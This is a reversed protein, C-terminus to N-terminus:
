AAVRLEEAVRLVLDCAQGHSINYYDQLHALLTKADLWPEIKKGQMVASESLQLSKRREEIATAELETAIKNEAEISARKEAVMADIKEDNNAKAQAIKAQEEAQVKAIAKAEEQKRIEERQAELRAAEGAKQKEIRSTITLAFDEIPKSILSQLDPFLASHGAANEKCWTLKARVDKAAADAAIKGNALATDLADKLSAITRKSKIAGAFDPRAITLQIPRTELELAQVHASFDVGAKRVLETRISEKRAKVMKELMLRTTRATDAYLKVTKRMDDIDSTQSLANSEAAELADQANQLVKIAQEADAFGQDDNPEKNISLVFEKLRTGFKQLNTILSISGNVQISLAPLDMVPAAIVEVKPQEIEGAALKRKYEELDIAFQTWGQVIHDRVSQNSEYWGHLEEVLEYGDWKSAMFLCKTAGSVMLQQEMQAYYQEPIEGAAFASRLTDNLSKHEFIISEDMTLGDFSASLKGESGVVPYLKKGIIEEALPRALAEFLHGDDFRRQTADDIEPSIGTAMEHLLDNRLKYQSIGLMAPADSANFHTARHYHWEPSGQLFDHQEM